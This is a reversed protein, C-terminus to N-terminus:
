VSPAPTTRVSMSVQSPVLQDKVVDGLGPGALEYRFPTEHAVAVFQTATPEETANSPVFRVSMSLHCPVVQDTITDGFTPVELERRLPTDHAVAVLQTATPQDPL